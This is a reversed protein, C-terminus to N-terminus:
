RNVKCVQNFSHRSNFLAVSIYLDTKQFLRWCSVREKYFHLVTNLLGNKLAPKVYAM